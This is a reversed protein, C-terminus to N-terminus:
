YSSMNDPMTMKKSKPGGAFGRKIHCFVVLLFKILGHSQWKGLKEYM